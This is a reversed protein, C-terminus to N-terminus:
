GSATRTRKSGGDGSTWASRRGPGPLPGRSSRLAGRRRARRPAGRSRSRRRSRRSRRCRGPRLRPPPYVRANGCAWHCVLWAAVGGPPDRHGSATGREHVRRHLLKEVLHVRLEGQDGEGGLPGPLDVRVVVLESLGEPTITGGCTVDTDPLGSVIAKSSIAAGLGCVVAGIRAFSSSSACSASSVPSSGPSNVSPSRRLLRLPRSRAPESPRGSGGSALRAAPVRPSPLPRSSARCPPGRLRDPRRSRTGSRVAGRLTAEDYEPDGPPYRCVLRDLHAPLSTSRPACTAGTSVSSAVRKTPGSVKEARAESGHLVPIKSSSSVIGCVQSPWCRRLRPPREQWQWPEDRGVGRAEGVSKQRRGHDRCTSRDHDAGRHVCLHPLVGGDLLVNRSQATAADVDDPGFLAPERATVRARAPQSLGGLDDHAATERTAARRRDLRHAVSSRDTVQLPQANEDGGTASTLRDVRHPEYCVPGRALLAMRDGLRRDSRPAVTVRTVAARM